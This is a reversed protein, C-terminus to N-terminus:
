FYSRPCVTIALFATADSKFKKTKEHALLRAPQSKSSNQGLRFIKRVTLIEREVTIRVPLFTRRLERCVSNYSCHIVAAKWFRCTERTGPTQQQQSKSFNQSFIQAGPTQSPSLLFKPPPRTTKTTKASSRWSDAQSPLFFFFLRQCFVQRASLVFRGTSLSLRLLDCHPLQEVLYSM